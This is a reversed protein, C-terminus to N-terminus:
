RRINGIYTDGRASFYTAIVVKAYFHVDAIACANAEQLTYKSGKISAHEYFKLILFM